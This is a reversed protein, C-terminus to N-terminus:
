RILIEVNPNLVRLNGNSIVLADGSSKFNYFDANRVNSTKRNAEFLTLINATKIDATALNYINGASYLLGKITAVPSILFSSVLTIDATLTQNTSDYVNWTNDSTTFGIANNSRFGVTMSIGDTTNATSKSAITVNSNTSTYNKANGAANSLIQMWLDGEYVVTAYPVSASTASSTVQNVASNIRGAFTSCHAAWGTEASFTINVVSPDIDNGVIRYFVTTRRTGSVNNGIIYWAGEPAAIATGQNYTIALIQGEGARAACISVLAVTGVGSSPTISYNLGYVENEAVTTLPISPAGFVVGPNDKFDYMGGITGATTFDNGLGSSDLIMNDLTTDIMPWYGYINATSVPYMNWKENMLQDFSLVDNWIKVPGINSTSIFNGTGNNWTPRGIRIHNILGGTGAFNNAINYYVNSYCHGDNAPSVMLGHSAPLGGRPDYWGACFVWENIVLTFSDLKLTSTAEGDCSSQMIGATDFFAAFYFRGSTDEFCLHVPNETYTDVKLWMSWSIGPSHTPFNGTTKQVRGTTTSDTHFAM